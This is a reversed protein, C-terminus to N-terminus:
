GCCRAAVNPSDDLSQETRLVACIAARNKSRDEEGRYRQGRTQADPAGQEGEQSGIFSGNVPLASEGNQSFPRRMVWRINSLRSRIHQRLEYTVTLREIRNLTKNLKLKKMKEPRM